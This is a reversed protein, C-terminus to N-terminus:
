GEKPLIQKTRKKLEDPLLLVTRGCTLCRIKVDAGTGAVEWRSGGCPHPKKTIVIDGTKM